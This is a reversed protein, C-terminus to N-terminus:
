VSGFAALYMNFTRFVKERLPIIAQYAEDYFLTRALQIDEIDILMILDPHQKGYLTELVLQRRVITTPYQQLFAKVRQSYEEFYAEYGETFTGEVIITVKDTTSPM